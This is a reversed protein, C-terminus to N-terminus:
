KGETKKASPDCVEVLSGDVIKADLNGWLESEHRSPGGYVYLDLVVTGDLEQVEDKPLTGGRPDISRNMWLLLTDNLDSDASWLLSNATEGHEWDRLGCEVSGLFHVQTLRRAERVIGDVIRRTFRM